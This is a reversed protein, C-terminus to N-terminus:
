TSRTMRLWFGHAKNASYKFFNIGGPLRKLRLFAKQLRRRTIRNAMRLLLVNIDEEKDTCKSM